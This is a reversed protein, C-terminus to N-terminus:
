SLWRKMRKKAAAPSVTRGEEVAREGAALRELIYLRRSLADFADVGVLCAAPKGGRTLLL